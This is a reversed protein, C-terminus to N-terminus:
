GRLMMMNVASANPTNGGTARSLGFLRHIVKKGTVGRLHRSRLFPMLSGSAVNEVHKPAGNM